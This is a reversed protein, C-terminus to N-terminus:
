TGGEHAATIAALRELAARREAEPLFASVLPVHAPVLTKLAADRQYGTLYEAVSESAATHLALDYEDQTLAPATEGALLEARGRNLREALVHLGYGLDSHAIAASPNLALRARYVAVLRQAWTVAEAAPLVPLGLLERAHMAPWPHPNVGEPGGPLAVDDGERPRHATQLYLEAAKRAAEDAHQQADAVALADGSAKLEDIRRLWARVLNHYAWGVWFGLGVDTPPDSHAGGQDRYQRAMGRTGADVFAVAEAPPLFGALQFGDQAVNLPTLGRGHALFGQYLAVAQQARSRRAAIHEARAAEVEAVPPDSVAPLASLSRDHCHAVASLSWALRWDNGPSPDDASLDLRVSLAAETVTVADAVPLAVAAAMIEDAVEAAAALHEPATRLADIYAQRARAYVLPTPEDTWSGGPAPVPGVVVAARATAIRRQSGLLDAASLGALLGALKIRVEPAPTLAALTTAASIAEDTAAIAEDSRGAALAATATAVAARVAEALRRPDDQQPQTM